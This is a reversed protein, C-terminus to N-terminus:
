EMELCFKKLAVLIEAVIGELTLRKRVDTPVTLDAYRRYLPQRESYVGSITQGPRLVIGRTKINRLRRTLVALPVDIFVTVSGSGLHQMAIDSLVMSGGTAIVTNECDLTLAAHEEAKLFDVIGYTDIYKQLTMGCQKSILIDTDVFGLGLTKALIVGATSKGAGPMGILIINNKM